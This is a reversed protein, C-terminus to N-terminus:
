RESTGTLRGPILRGVSLGRAARLEHVRAVLRATIAQQDARAPALQGNLPLERKHMQRRATSGAFGIAAALEDISGGALYAAHIARVQESTM